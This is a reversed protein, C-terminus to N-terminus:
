KLFHTRWVLYGDGHKRNSANHFSLDIIKFLLPWRANLPSYTKDSAEQPSERLFSNNIMAQSNTVSQVWKVRNSIRFTPPM